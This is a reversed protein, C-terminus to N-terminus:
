SEIVFGIELWSWAGGHRVPAKDFLSSCVSVVSGWVRRECGFGVRECGFGVRECGFGVRSADSDAIAIRM